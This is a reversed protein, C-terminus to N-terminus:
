AQGLEASRAVDEVRRKIGRLHRAERWRHGLTAIPVRVGEPLRGLVRDVYRQGAATALTWDRTIRGRVIMRSRGRDLPEIVHEWSAIPGRTGCVTLVLDDVPHVGDIGAEGALAVDGVEIRQYSALVRTVSSSGDAGIRDFRWWGARGSGQQVLWPWVRDPPADLTIAHTIALVPDAVISDGPMPRAREAPSAVISAFRAGRWAVAAVVGWLAVAFVGYWVVEDGLTSTGPPWFWAQSGTFSAHMGMAILLSGTQSYVWTMLVRYATLAVVWEIAHVVWVGGHAERGLYDPLLHWLAWPLGIMVGTDFWSTRALLRPTAFGTWGLEECVGAGVGVILAILALTSPDAGRAVAPLFREDALSLVGFIAVLLAPAILLSAYWRPTLRWRQLSQLLARLGRASELKWTLALSAVSPGLLMAGFMAYLNHQTAAVVAGTWAIGFALAFYWRVSRM